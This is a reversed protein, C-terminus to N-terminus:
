LCDALRPAPFRDAANAPEALLRRAAACDKAIQERLAERGTFKEEGRIFGVLEVRVARGYFDGQVEFLHAELVVDSEGFTPRRGINAVGDYSAGGMGVRVAYVGLRPRLYDTMALNLTPFGIQRGRQDGKMVHGEIAWWHGLLEAAAYPEGARLKERILTSSFVAGKAAVPELVDLGYGLAPARARLLDANGARGKGFRYDYGVVLHALGLQRRLVDEIFAEACTAALQADFPLVFLIDVGFEQLHHAKVRFPTLLFPTQNPQFFLRPHPETTLVALPRDMTRAIGGAHAIVAQHGRHFGDFTGLAAVAGWATSPLTAGHRYIQM